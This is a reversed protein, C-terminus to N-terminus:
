FFLMSKLFKGGLEDFALPGTKEEQKDSDSNDKETPEAKPAGKAAVGPQLVSVFVLLDLCSNM